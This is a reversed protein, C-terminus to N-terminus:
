PIRGLLPAFEKPLQALMDWAEKPPIAERLVHMVADAHDIAAPLAVGERQSVRQYFEQLSFSKGASEFPLQGFEIDPIRLFSAIRPPLVSALDEREGGSLHEGLTVLTAQIARETDDQSALNAVHQVRTIFDQYEM